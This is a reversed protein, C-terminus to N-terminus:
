QLGAKIGEALCRSIVVASEIQTLDVAPDSPFLLKLTLLSTDIILRADADQLERVPLRDLVNALDVFSLTTDRSAEELAVQAVAFGQRYEPKVQLARRTGVEAISQVQPCVMHAQQTTMCGPTFLLVIAALLPIYRKM